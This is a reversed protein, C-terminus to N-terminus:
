AVADNLKEETLKALEKSADWEDIPVLYDAALTVQEGDYERVVMLYTRNQVSEIFSSVGVLGLVICRGHYSHFGVEGVGWKQKM